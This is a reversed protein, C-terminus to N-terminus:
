YGGINSRAIELKKHVLKAQSEVKALLEVDDSKRLIRLHNNLKIMEVCLVREKVIERAMNAKETALKM